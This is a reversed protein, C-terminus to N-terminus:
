PLTVEAWRGHGARRVHTGRVAVRGHDVVNVSWANAAPAYAGIYTIITSWHAGVWDGPQPAIVYEYGM